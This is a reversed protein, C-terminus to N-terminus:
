VTEADNERTSSILEQWNKSPKSKLNERPSRGCLPLVVAKSLRQVVRYSVIHFFLWVSHILRTVVVCVAIFIPVVIYLGTVSSSVNLNLDVAKRGENINLVWLTLTHM